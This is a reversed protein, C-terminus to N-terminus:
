KDGTTSTPTIETPVAANGKIKNATKEVFTEVTKVVKKIDDIIVDEENLFKAYITEWEEREKQVFASSFIRHYWKIFVKDISRNKSFNSVFEVLTM